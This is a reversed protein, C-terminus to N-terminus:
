KFKENLIKLLVENAKQPNVKGGSVKMINGLVFKIVKESRETYETVLAENKAIIENVWKTIINEDSIQVLDHEKILQDIDGDFNVLLPVIKKFSKGSIIEKDLLDITKELDTTKINLEYAKVNKSNALSVVEAFFLKSLKNRDAYNISDFYNALEIDNTLSKIYIDQIEEKKYRSEKEWPLENLKVNNIFEDSLKIFPINSEPFYKYDITGTKTRMVITSQTEEDYRKTQQLIPENTLIKQEQLKIEYEIANKIARFSNINKIEVKTGFKSYGKPRLSINIDARLSGQEMKASSINLSLAIRRIMDVYAVAEDASSIVPNSVIEILPVGARNYDLKTKEGHYQRATDEELHIREISIKKTGLDTNIEVYGNSGIPRYFQTIQYGKPLDPYFYNKRDFHLERDITMNLAKALKIGSVVAEKNLLPLTGPYGLDIQNVTTNAEANFDIKSPSFMKTKTNLELHIEIGIIAEFNNM